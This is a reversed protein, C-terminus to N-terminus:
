YEEDEEIEEYYQNTNNPDNTTSYVTIYNNKTLKPSVLVGVAVAVSVDYTGENWYTILPDTYMYDEPDGGEFEWIFYHYGSFGTIEVHFSIQDGEYIFTSYGPNPYFDVIEPEAKEKLDCTTLILIPLITLSVIFLLIKSYFPKM